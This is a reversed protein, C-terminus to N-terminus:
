TLMARLKRLEKASAEGADKAELWINATRGPLTALQRCLDHAIKQAAPDNDFCIIRSPFAAIRAVQAATVATGFTAVAGPGIKWVDLPGEVVIATHRVYDAGYLLHKHPVKESYRDASKYRLKHKPAVSRSTWSVMQGNLFIPIFIRFSLGMHASMGIGEIEWLKTIKDPNLGRGQLYQRHMQLLPVRGNPLKLKGKIVAKEISLDFGDTVLNLLPAVPVDVMDQLTELLDMRGCSWCNLYKGYINLGLRWHESNPSCSPCDLQIWGERCHEHGETIHPINLEDLMEELTM